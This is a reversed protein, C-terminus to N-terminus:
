RSTLPVRQFVEIYGYRSMDSKCFQPFILCGCKVFSYTIQSRFISIYQFYQVNQPFSSFISRNDYNWTLVPVLNERRSLCYNSILSNSIVLNSQIIAEAYQQGCHQKYLCFLSFAEIQLFHPLSINIDKSALSNFIRNLRIGNNDCYAM